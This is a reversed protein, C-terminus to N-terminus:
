RLVAVKSHQINNGIRNNALMEGVLQTLGLVRDLETGAFLGADCSIKVGSM